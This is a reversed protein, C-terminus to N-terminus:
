AKKGKLTILTLESPALVRLPPGWFGTGNSVYIQTKDNMKYLGSLFPQALRVLFHFPFIQGGHTHGSLILDPKADELSLTQRPQHALLVQALNEDVNAFAKKIDPKLLGFRHGALDHLGIINIAEDGKRFVLSEDQLLRINDQFNYKIYNIIGYVGRYYEHNGLVYFAPKNLTKFPQLIPKVEDIAKDIFDGTFVVLDADLANIRSVIKSVFDAGASQGIHLDSVQIIKLEKFQTNNIKISVRKLAPQRLGQVLGRVFYLGLFVLIFADGFKKLATRREQDFAFRGLVRLEYVVSTAFTMFLVGFLAWLSNQLLSKDYGYFHVLIYAIPAPLILLFVFLGFCRKYPQSLKKYLRFYVSALM